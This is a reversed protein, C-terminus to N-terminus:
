HRTAVMASQEKHQAVASAILRHAHEYAALVAQEHNPFNNPVRIRPASHNKLRAFDRDREMMVWSCWRGTPEKQATVCACYGDQEILPYSFM